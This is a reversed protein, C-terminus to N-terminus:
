IKTRLRIQNPTSGTWRKLTRRFSTADSFGLAEAISAIKLNSEHLYKLALKRRQDDAIQGYSIGENRLKRRLTRPTVGLASCVDEFEIKRGLNEMLVAEVRGRLGRSQDLEALMQECLAVLSAHTAANRFTVPHDLWREEFVFRNEAAGYAIDCGPIDIHDDGVLGKSYALSIGTPTFEDGLVDRCAALTEGMRMDVIFQYLEPFSAAGAMPDMRVIGLGQDRAHTFSVDLPPEMARSYELAFHVARAFNTSTLIAFGYIGYGSLRHRLGVQFAFSPESVLEAANAYVRFIEDASVNVPRRVAEPTLRTKALIRETTFGREELAEILHILVASPYIASHYVTKDAM